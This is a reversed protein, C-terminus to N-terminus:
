AGAEGAKAAEVEDPANTNAEFHYVSLVERAVSLCRERITPLSEVILLSLADAQEQELDHNDLNGGLIEEFAARYVNMAEEVPDFASPNNPAMAEWAITKGCLGCRGKTSHWGRSLLRDRAEKITAIDAEDEPSLLPGDNTTNM